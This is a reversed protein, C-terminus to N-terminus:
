EAGGAGSASETPAAAGGEGAGSGLDMGGQGDTQGGQGDTQGGQGGGQGDTQGGQGNTQGGRGGIQGGPGGGGTGATAMAPTRNCRADSVRDGLPPCCRDVDAKRCVLGVDCDSNGAVAFDCREGEGQKSCATLLALLLATSSVVFLRSKLGARFM